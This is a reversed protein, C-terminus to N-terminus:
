KPEDYLGNKGSYLPSAEGNERLWQLYGEIDPGGM